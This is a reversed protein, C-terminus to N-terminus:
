AHYRIGARELRDLAESLREEPLSLSIRFYGEGRAGYGVGPTVVVGAADLVRAAFSRSDMGGPTPLWIYFTARPPEVPWGLDALRRCALDRRRQYLARMADVPEEPGELAAVAAWQVADFVGSDVNSKLRALAEVAPAAGAAWGVRWGTMNYTKSLSHFELGVEKGGPVQLFSPARYGDFAVESYAADHCVLLDYERAFRVVDAFFNAPATAGTPNNPYNLWLIKARRAAEVPVESLDPLWGREPRLPLTVVEGGALLTGGAYVPYAPDPVLVVDGPDVFCLAVHAIGEKSGILAVVERDPDLSVGFRERYWRAVAQRFAPMGQYSPYRHTAPDQARRCLEAVVPGPTPRDPDGIGLSIVDVGRQRAQAVKADIEAFLYPPLAQIRRAERM